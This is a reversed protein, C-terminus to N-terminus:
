RKAAKDWTQSRGGKRGAEAALAKDQSFARRETPVAKGGKSAIQRQQEASMSAFGRRAKKPEEPETTM